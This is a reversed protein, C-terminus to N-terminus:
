LHHRVPATLAVDAFSFRVAVVSHIEAVSSRGKTKLFTKM